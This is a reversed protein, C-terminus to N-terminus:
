AKAKKPKRELYACSDRADVRDLLRQLARAVKPPPEGDRLYKEVGRRLEEAEKGHTVGDHAPCRSGMICVSALKAELKRIRERLRTSEACVTCSINGHKACGVNM